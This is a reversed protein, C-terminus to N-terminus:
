WILIQRERTRRATLVKRLAPTGGATIGFNYISNNELNDEFALGLKM